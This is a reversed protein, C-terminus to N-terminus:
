PTAEEKTGIGLVECLADHVAEAFTPEPYLEAAAQLVGYYRAHFKEGAIAFLKIAFGQAELSGDTLDIDMLIYQWVNDEGLRQEIRSPLTTGLAKCIEFTYDIKNMM